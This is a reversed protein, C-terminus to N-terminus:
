TLRGNKSMLCIHSTKKELTSREDTPYGQLNSQPKIAVFYVAVLEFHVAVYARKHDQPIIKTKADNHATARIKNDIKREVGRYLVM